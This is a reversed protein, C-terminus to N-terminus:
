HPIANLYGEVIGHQNAFLRSGNIEVDTASTHINTIQYWSNGPLSILFSSIFRPPFNKTANYNLNKYGKQVKTNCAKIPCAVTNLQLLKNLTFVLWFLWCSPLDDSYNELQKCYRIIHSFHKSGLFLYFSTIIM